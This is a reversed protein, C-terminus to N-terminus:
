RSRRADVHKIITEVAKDANDNVIVATLYPFAFHMSEVYKIEQEAIQFRSGDPDRGITHLRERLIPLTPPLIYFACLADRFENLGQIEQIIYDSVPIKGQGLAASVQSRLIGYRNGYKGITHIFENNGAKKKFEAPSICTRDEDELTRPKRDTILPIPVFRNDKAQLGKILTSKGVASEGSLIVFTEKM